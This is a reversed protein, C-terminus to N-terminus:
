RDHGSKSFIGKLQEVKLMRQGTRGTAIMRSGVKAEIACILEMGEQKEVTATIVVEEGAFAPGKHEIHLLTGVGEEDKEKMEIFFLRSSWEFDRALAFTAYVPHVREGHFAAEDDRTIIKKYVKQDGIAFINKM